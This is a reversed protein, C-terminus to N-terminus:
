QNYRNGLVNYALSFVFYSVFLIMLLIQLRMVAFIAFLAGVLVLARERSLNIKKQKFTPFRVNSVMLGALACMLLSLGLSFSHHVLFRNSNLLLITVFCGALTTPVGLFFVSQQCHILNFRALRLVGAMVFVAGVCVGVIGLSNLAWAYALFAPAVCFSIADCLSDLQLGLDSEVQIYRAVRGDLADMLAGMLICYAAAVLEGEFALALSCFGFFANGLTFIHPLFRSGRSLLIRNKLHSFPRPRVRNKITFVPREFNIHAFLKM